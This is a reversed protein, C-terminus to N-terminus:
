NIYMHELGKEGNDQVKRQIKSWTKWKQFGGLARLLDKLEVEADKAHGQHSAPQGLDHQLDQTPSRIRIQSHTAEFHLTYMSYLSYVNVYVHKATNM